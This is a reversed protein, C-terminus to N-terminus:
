VHQADAVALIESPWEDDDIFAVFEGSCRRIAQNRVLAINQQAEVCYATEVTATRAFEEVVSRASQSSDNDAVVISFTFEGNTDQRQLAM